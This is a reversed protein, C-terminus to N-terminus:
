VGALPLEETLLCKFYGVNSSQRQGDPCVFQAGVVEERFGGPKELMPVEEDVVCEKGHYQSGKPCIKTAGETRVRTCTKSSVFEDDTPVVEKGTQYAHKKKEALLRLKKHKHGADFSEKGNSYVTPSCDYEEVIRCLGDEVALFGPACVFQPPVAVRRLCINHRQATGPPCFLKPPLPVNHSCQRGDSMIAFGPPCQVLPEAQKTRACM